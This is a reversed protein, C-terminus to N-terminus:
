FRQKESALFRAIRDEEQKMNKEFLHSLQKFDQKALCSIYEKKEQSQIVVPSFGQELLSYNMLMRGTRGNGDSFPHVREFEIHAKSIIDRKEQGDSVAALRSHLNEVWHQMLLTTDSVSATKFDAGKIVNSCSKFKGKDQQLRDTLLAHIKKIGPLSLSEENQLESLVYYFAEEHNKVEFIEDLDLVRDGTVKNYLIVSVVESLSLTNGEIASSHHAFRVLVDDVYEKPLYRMIIGWYDYSWNMKM